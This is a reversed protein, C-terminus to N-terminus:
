QYIPNDPPVNRYLHASGPRNEEGHLAKPWIVDITANSDLPAFTLRPTAPADARIAHARWHRSSSIPWTTPIRGREDAISLVIESLVEWPVPVAYVSRSHVRQQLLDVLEDPSPAVVLAPRQHTRLLDVFYEFSEADDFGGERRGFSYGILVIARCMRFLHRGFVYPATETIASPEPSPLLKPTLYPLILDYASTAHLWEGYYPSELWLRDISGHPELVQHSRGRYASALGDLNFSFITSPKGVVDFVGYQPPVAGVLSRWLGCQVLLDLTGPAIHYLLLKRVSDRDFRVDGIIRDFLPSRPVSSVPYIGINDYEREVFKRLQPTMPVLGYSAGAGVVYFTRPQSM